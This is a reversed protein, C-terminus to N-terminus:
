ANLQLVTWQSWLKSPMDPREVDAAMEAIEEGNKGERGGFVHLSEERLSTDLPITLTLIYPSSKAIDSFGLPSVIMAAGHSRDRPHPAERKDSESSPGGVVSISGKVAGINENTWIKAAKSEESTRSQRSSAASSPDDSSNTSTSQDPSSQAHCLSPTSTLVFLLCRAINSTARPVIRSLM